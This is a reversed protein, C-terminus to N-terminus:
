MFYTKTNHYFSTALKSDIRNVNLIFYLYSNKLNCLLFFFLYVSKFQQTFSGNDKTITDLLYYLMYVHNFFLYMNYLVIIKDWDNVNNESFLFGRLERFDNRILALEM